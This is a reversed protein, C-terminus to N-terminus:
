ARGDQITHKEGYLIRHRAKGRTQPLMAKEEWKTSFLGLTQSECFGFVCGCYNGNNGIGPKRCTGRNPPKGAALGPVCGRQKGM